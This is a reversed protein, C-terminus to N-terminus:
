SELLAASRPGVGQELARELAVATDVDLRAPLLSLAADPHAQVLDVAGAARHARRSDVGFHTPLGAGDPSLWVSTGTGDADAVFSTRHGTALDLAQAVAARTLCPLDSVFVVVGTGPPRVSAAHAAAANIGPHGRDDVPTAGAAEAVAAVDEDHTAVLIEEIADSATLVALLDELFARALRDSPVEATRLRSKAAHFHKVPM